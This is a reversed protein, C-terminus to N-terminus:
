PIFRLSHRLTGKNYECLKALPLKLGRWVVVSFVYM